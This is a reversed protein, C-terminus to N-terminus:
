ARDAKQQAAQIWATVDERMEGRTPYRGVQQQRRGWIRNYIPAADLSPIYGLSPLAALLMDLPTPKM